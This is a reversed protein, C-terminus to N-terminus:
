PRRSAFFIRLIEACEQELIGTTIEVRHNLQPNALLEFLTQGGGKPDTAGYVVRDVRSQVIVGSCMVCPELTSYLTHGTLRWTGLKQCAAEIAITEAHATPSQFEERRNQAEAVVENTASNVIIAGVPVEQSAAARTALQLCHQM